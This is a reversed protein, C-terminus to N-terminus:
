RVAALLENVRQSLAPSELVSVHTENYGEVRVAAHQAALRLQSPVTVTGDSTEGIRRASAFPGCATM